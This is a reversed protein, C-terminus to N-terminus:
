GFLAEEDDLPEEIEPEPEGRPPYVIRSDHNKPAAKGPLGLDSRSFANSRVRNLLELLKSGDINAGAKLVKLSGCPKYCKGCRNVSAIAVEPGDTDWLYITDLIITESHCLSLM